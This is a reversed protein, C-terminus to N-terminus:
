EMKAIKRLIERNINRRNLFTFNSRILGEKQGETVYAAARQLQSLPSDDIVLVVDYPVLSPNLWSFMIIPVGAKQDLYEIGGGALVVCSLEASDFYDSFTTFFMTELPDGLANKGGYENVGRLFAERARNRFVNSQRLDFFVAISGSKNDSLAAAVLGARYYDAEIDTRFVYFDDQHESRYIGDLIVIRATSNLQRYMGASRSFRSPFIVCYPQLSRETIAYPIIDYGADNAIIVPKVPRFLALSSRFSERNLRNEGYIAVFSEEAVVLVPARLNFVILPIVLIIALCIIVALRKFKM